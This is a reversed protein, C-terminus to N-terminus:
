RTQDTNRKVHLLLLEESNLVPDARSNDEETEFDDDVDSDEETDTGSRVLWAAGHLHHLWHM